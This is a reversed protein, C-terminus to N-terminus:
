KGPTGAHPEAREVQLPRLRGAALPSYRRAHELSHLRSHLLELAGRIQQRLSDVGRIAGRARPEAQSLLEAAYEAISHVKTRCYDDDVADSLEGCVDVVRRLARRDAGPGVYGDIIRRLAAQGERAREIDSYGM